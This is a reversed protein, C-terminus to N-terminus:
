PSLSAELTNSPLFPSTPSPLSTATIRTKPPEPGSDADAPPYYPFFVNQPSPTYYPRGREFPSDIRPIPSPPPGVLSRPNSYDVSVPRTFANIGVSEILGLERDTRMDFPNEWPQESFTHQSQSSSYIRSRWIDDRHMPWQHSSDIELANPM